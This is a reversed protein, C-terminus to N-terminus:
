RRRAARDEGADGSRAKRAIAGRGPNWRLRHDAPTRAADPRRFARLGAARDPLRQVPRGSAPAVLGMVNPNRHVPYVLQVDERRALRALAECIREFGARLKRPPARHGCDAKAPPDSSRGPRRPARGGGARGACLAGCRDGFQRHRLHEATSAKRWCTTRRADLHSRLAAAALRATVVRNMEEPFPQALDGTRLGAEVHGVPVSQYFAALAGCLPPPPTARSWCWIPASRRSSLSM